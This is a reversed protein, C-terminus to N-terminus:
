SSGGAAQRGARVHRGAPGQGPHDLRRGAGADPGNVVEGGASKVREGAADIDPVNFYYLWFCAPVEPPKNFMGGIAPGGKGFLQYTGMPGMDVADAKQWGFMEAYFAFDKEWDAAWLEHWGTRGPTGPQPPDQRPGSPTFLPIVAMQPDAIVSFRGVNPIDRPEVYVTAGLGKAKATAADVDDVGVYGLWSPPAGMKRADEPQEMLGAAMDSGAYFLTYDMGPMGADQAKWGVVDAYFAQAAKTDTTMLEYWVFNGQM